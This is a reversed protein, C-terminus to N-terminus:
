DAITDCIALLQEQLPSSPLKQLLKQSRILIVQKKCEDDPNAYMSVSYGMLLALCITAEQEVTKAQYSYLNNIQEHIEKNLLTLEDAYIYQRSDSMHLLARVLNQLKEIHKQLSSSEM